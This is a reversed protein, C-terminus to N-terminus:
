SGLGAVSAPLRRTAEDSEGMRAGTDEFGPPADVECEFEFRDRVTARDKCRDTVARDDGADTASIVRM